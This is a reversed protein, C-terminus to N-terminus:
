EIGQTKQWTLPQGNANLINSISRHCNEAQVRLEELRRRSRETTERDSKWTKFDVGMENARTESTYDSINVGSAKEFTEIAAKLKQHAQRGSERDMSDQASKKGREFEERLAKARAPEDVKQAAYILATLFVVSYPIPTLEPPKVVWKIRVLANKRTQEPVGLGWTPPLEGDKVISADPVILSWRNCYRMLSESKAANSLEKLWDTRSVKMEFGHIMRGCSRYMGIAIGDASRVADFGTADRVEKM